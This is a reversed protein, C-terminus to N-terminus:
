EMNDRCKAQFNRPWAAFDLGVQGTRDHLPQEAIVLFQVEQSGKAVAVQGPIDLDAFQIELGTRHFIVGGGLLIIHGAVVGVYHPIHGTGTDIDHHLHYRRSFRRVSQRQTQGTIRINRQFHHLLYASLTRVQQKQGLGMIVQRKHFVISFHRWIGEVHHHAIWLVVLGQKCHGICRHRHLIVGCCQVGAGKNGIATCQLYTYAGQAIRYGVGTNQPLFVIGLVPRHDVLERMLLGRQRLVAAGEIFPQVYRSFHKDIAHHM